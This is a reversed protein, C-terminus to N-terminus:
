NDSFLRVPLQAEKIIQGLYAKRNYMFAYWCLKSQKDETRTWVRCDAGRYLITENYDPKYGTASFIRVVDSKNDSEWYKEDAVTELSVNADPGLYRCTIEIHSDKSNIKFSGCVKYRWASLQLNGNGKFRIAYSIGKGPNRYDAKYVYKEKHVEIDEEVDLATTDKTFYIAKKDPIIGRLEEVSPVHYTDESGKERWTRFRNKMEYFSFLGGAKDTEHSTAFARGDEDLNYEAVYKIAMKVRKQPAEGSFLRVSVEENKDSYLTFAGVSMASARWAKGANREDSTWAHYATGRGLVKGGTKYGNFPFLRIVDGRSDDGSWFAEESVEKISKKNSKDIYRCTIELAATSKGQDVIRYRWASLQRDGNGIFRIAYTVGKGTNEYDAHYVKLDGAVVIEEEVGTRSSRETFSIAGKDPFIGRLEALSPLHFLEEGIKLSTFKDVADSYTFYQKEVPGASKVNAEVDKEAVYELALKDHVPLPKLNGKHSNDKQCAALVAFSVIFAIINKIKM